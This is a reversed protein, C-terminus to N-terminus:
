AWASWVIFADRFTEMRQIEHRVDLADLSVHFIVFPTDLHDADEEVVLVMMNGEDDPGATDLIIADSNYKRGNVEWNLWVDQDQEYAFRNTDYTM